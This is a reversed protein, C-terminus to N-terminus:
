GPHIIREEKATPVLSFLRGAVSRREEDPGSAREKFSLFLWVIQTPAQPQDRSEFAILCTALMLRNLETSSRRGKNTTVFTVVFHNFQLTQDQSLNFAPPM